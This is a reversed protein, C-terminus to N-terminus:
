SVAKENEDIRVAHGLGRLRSSKRVYVTNPKNYLEELERNYSQQWQERECIPCYIRHLIKRELISLRREDNKTMTWTEATYTLKPMVLTKHILFKTKRSLLHLKLQSNLGYQSRNAAILCNTIGESVNNDGNVLSGLYMSTDVREFNYRGAEITCIKSCNQTNAVVMYKTKGENIVLGVEKSVEELLQFGKMSALSRGNIVTDDAYVM